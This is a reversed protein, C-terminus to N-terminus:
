HGNMARRYAIVNKEHQEFTSSFRHRGSGNGEAVFFLYDTRAPNMAAKLAGTGPNAIPGPPLGAHRYTNYPSDAELDSRYITGHYNGSLMAAYVITPDAALGMRKELRNYYVSAIEPREDAAASEKEVISAMTVITHVNDHLGINKAEQEFRKVMMAVMDHMSQTRTFEYTDPFLYGELTQAQPDLGRILAVDSRATKLFDEASGLGSDQIAQAIDFMNYGEPIVVTHAFIDGKALRDGVQIANASSDFKYEGAKLKHTPRFYHLLVFANASRIVGSNKLEQAIRRSSWGPRLLVYATQAPKMPLFIGYVLWLGLCLVLLVFIALLRRM